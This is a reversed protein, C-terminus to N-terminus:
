DWWLFIPNLDNVDFPEPDDLERQCRQCVTERADAAAPLFVVLADAYPGGDDDKQIHDEPVMVRTAGAAYLEEVFSRAATAGPFHNAGLPAPNGNRRLWRRAEPGSYFDPAPRHFRGERNAQLIRDNEARIEAPPEALRALLDELSDAARRLQDARFRKNSMRWLYVVGLDAAAVSVLLFNEKTITQIQALPIYHRPMKQYERFGWATAWFTAARHHGPERPDGTSFFYLIPGHWDLGNSGPVSFWAPRPTPGDHALVFARLAAPLPVGLEREEAAIDEESVARKPLYEEYTYTVVM